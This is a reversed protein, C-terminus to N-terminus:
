DNDARRSWNQKPKEAVQIDEEPPAVYGAPLLSVSMNKHVYANSGAADIIIGVIGGFLLNGAIWGSMKPKAVVKTEAYGDMVFTITVPTGNPLDVVAPTVGQVGDYDGTFAAGPPDSAVEVTSTRGNIVTACSSLAPVLTACLTVIALKM